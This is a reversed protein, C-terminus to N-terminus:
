VWKAGTESFVGSAGSIKDRLKGDLGDFYFIPSVSCLEPSKGAAVITRDAASLISNWVAVYWIVGDAYRDPISLRAGLGVREVTSLWSGGAPTGYVNNSLLTGDVYANLSGDTDVNGTYTLLMNQIGTTMDSGTNGRWSTLNPSGSFSFIANWQKIPGAITQFGFQAVANDSIDNVEVVTEINGASPPLSHVNIMLSITINSLTPGNPIRDFNVFGASGDVDVGDTIRDASLISTKRVGM